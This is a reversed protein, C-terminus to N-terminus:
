QVPISKMYIEIFIYSTYSLAGLLLFGAQYFNIFSVKKVVKEFENVIHQAQELDEPTHHNPSISLWDGNLKLFYAKNKLELCGFIFSLVLSFLSFVILWILDNWVIDKLQSIIFGMSATSATILMFVTKEALSLHQKHLEVKKESNNMFLNFIM